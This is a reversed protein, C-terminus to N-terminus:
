FIVKQTISICDIAAYLRLNVLAQVRDLRQELVRGAVQRQLADCVHLCAAALQSM